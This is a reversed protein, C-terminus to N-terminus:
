KYTRKFAKEIEKKNTRRIITISLNIKYEVNSHDENKIKDKGTKIFTNMCNIPKHVINFDFKKTISNFKEFIKNFYPIFYKKSIKTSDSNTTKTGSIKSIIKSRYLRSAIILLQL